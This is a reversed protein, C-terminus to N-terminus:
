KCKVVEYSHPSGYMIHGTFTMIWIGNPMTEIQHVIGLWNSRKHRILDGKKM